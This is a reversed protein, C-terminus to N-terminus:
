SGKRAEFRNALPKPNSIFTEGEYFREQIVHLLPSHSKRQIDIILTIQTAFLLDIPDHHRKTEHEKGQDAVSQKV